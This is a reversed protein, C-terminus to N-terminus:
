LNLFRLHYQFVTPLHSVWRIIGWRREAETQGERFCRNYLRHMDDITLATASQSLEGAKAKIKELGVMFESVIRARTPLGRWRHAKEDLRWEDGDHPRVSRYWLTLASRTSVATAYKRGEFGESKEGCKQTIFAMIERPTRDSLAKPDWKPDRKLWFAFYAKIVREHAVRTGQTINARAIEAARRAAPSDDDDPFDDETLQMLENIRKVYGDAEELNIAVEEDAVQDETVTM